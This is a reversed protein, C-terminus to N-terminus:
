QASAPVPTIASARIELDIRATIGIVPAMSLENIEKVLRGKEEGRIM